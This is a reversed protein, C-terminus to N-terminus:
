QYEMNYFFSFTFFTFYSVWCGLALFLCLQFPLWSAQKWFRHEWMTSECLWGLVSHTLCLDKLFNVMWSFFYALKIKIVSNLTILCTCFCPLYLLPFLWIYNFNEPLGELLFHPKTQTHACQFSSPLLYLFFSWPGSVAFCMSLMYTLKISVPYM